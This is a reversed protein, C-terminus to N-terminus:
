AARRKAADMLQEPTSGPVIESCILDIVRDVVPQMVASDAKAFSVSRATRFVIERSTAFVLTGPGGAKIAASVAGALTMAQPASLGDISVRREDCHGARILLWAKLHEWSDVQPGGRQNEYAAQILGHLLNNQRLSRPKILKAVYRSSPPLGQILRYDLPTCGTLVGDGQRWVHLEITM